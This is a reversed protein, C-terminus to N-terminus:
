GKASANGVKGAPDNDSIIAFIGLNEACSCTDWRKLHNRGVCPDHKGRWLVGRANWNFDGWKSIRFKELIEVMEAGHTWPPERVRVGVLM